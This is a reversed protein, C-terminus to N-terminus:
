KVVYIFAKNDYIVDISFGGDNYRILAIRCNRNREDLCETITMSYDTYIEKPLYKVIRYISHANDDVSIYEDYFTFTIDAYVYEGLDFSNKYQNYYGFTNKFTSVRTQSFILKPVSVALILVIVIKKM